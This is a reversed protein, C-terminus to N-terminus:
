AGLDKLTGNGLPEIDLEIDPNRKKLYGAFRQAENMDICSCEFDGEKANVHCIIKRGKQEVTMRTIDTTKHESVSLGIGALMRDDLVYSCDLMGGSLYEEVDKVKRLTRFIRFKHSYYIAMVIALAIALIVMPLSYATGNKRNSAFALFFIALPIGTLLASFRLSILGYYFRKVM